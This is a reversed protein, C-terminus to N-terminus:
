RQTRASRRAATEDRLAWQIPDGGYSTLESPTLSYTRVIDSAIMEKVVEFAILANARTDFGAQISAEPNIRNVALVAAKSSDAAWTVHEFGLWADDPM